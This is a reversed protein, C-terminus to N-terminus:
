VVSSYFGGEASAFLPHDRDRDRQLACDTTNNAVAIYGWTSDEKLTGTVNEYWGGFDGNMAVLEIEGGRSQRAASLQQATFEAQRMIKQFEDEYTTTGPFDMGSPGELAFFKKLMALNTSFSGKSGDPGIRQIVNEIDAKM